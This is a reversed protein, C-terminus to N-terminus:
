VLAPGGGPARQSLDGECRGWSAGGRWRLDGPGRLLVESWDNEM